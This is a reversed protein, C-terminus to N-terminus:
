PIPVTMFLFIDNLNLLVFGALSLFPPFNQAHLTCLPWCSAIMCFVPGSILPPPLCISYLEKVSHAKNDAARQYPQLACDEIGNVM